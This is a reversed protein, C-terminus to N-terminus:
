REGNTRDARRPIKPLPVRQERAAELALIDKQMLGIDFWAEDPLDVAGRYDPGDALLYHL